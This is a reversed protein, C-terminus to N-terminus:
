PLFSECSAGYAGLVALLDQTDIQGFSNICTLLAFPLTCLAVIFRQHM